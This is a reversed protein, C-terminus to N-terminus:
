LTAPSLWIVNTTGVLPTTSSPANTSLIIMWGNSSVAPEWMFRRFANTGTLMGDRTYVPEVSWGNVGDRYFNGDVHLKAAPANTGVGVTGDYRIVAREKVGDAGRTVFVQDAYHATHSVNRFGFAASANPGADYHSILTMNSPATSTNRMILGASAYDNLPTTETSTVHVENPGGIRAAGGHVVSGTVIMSGGIHLTASPANTGIGVTGLSTDVTIGRAVSGYDGLFYRNASSLYGVILDNTGVAGATGTIRIPAGPNDVTVPGKLYTKETSLFAAAGVALRGTAIMNPATLQGTMTSGTIQVCGNTAAGIQNPINTLAPYVAVNTGSDPGVRLMDAFEAVVAGNTKCLNREVDTFYAVLRGGLDRFAMGSTEPAAPRLTAGGAGSYFRWGMGLSVDPMNTAVLGNVPQTMPFQSWTNAPPGMLSIDARAGALALAFFAFTLCCIRIM